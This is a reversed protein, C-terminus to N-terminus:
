VTLNGIFYIGEEHSTNLDYPYNLLVHHAASQFLYSQIQATEFHNRYLDDGVIYDAIFFYTHINLNELAPAMSMGELQHQEHNVRADALIINFPTYKSVYKIIDTSYSFVSININRENLTDILKYATPHNDFVIVDDESIQKLRESLLQDHYCM